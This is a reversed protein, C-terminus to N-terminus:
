WARELLERVEAASRVPRPNFYVGREHMVHEAV